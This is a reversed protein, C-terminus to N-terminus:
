AIDVSFNPESFKNLQNDVLPDGTFGMGGGEKAGFLTYSYSDTRETKIKEGFVAEEYEDSGISLMLKKILLITAREIIRPVAGFTIVKTGAPLQAENLTKIKDFAITETSHNVTIGIAQALLDRATDPTEFLLVDRERFGDASTLVAEVANHDVPNALTTEVKRVESDRANVDFWDMLGTYSDIQVNGRGAFFNTYLLEVFRGRIIYEDPNFVSTDSSGVIVDLRRPIRKGTVHATYLETLNLVEIFPIRNPFYLISSGHGNLKKTTRVPTFWQGLADNLIESAEQILLLSKAENLEKQSFGEQRLRHITTYQFM